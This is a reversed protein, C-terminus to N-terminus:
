NISSEIRNRHRSVVDSMKNMYVGTTKERSEEVVVCGRERAFWEVFDWPFREDRRDKRIVVKLGKLAALIGADVENLGPQRVGWEGYIVNFSVSTIANKQEEYMLDFIPVWHKWHPNPRRYGPCPPGYFEFINCSFPLLRAEQYTQRCVTLLSLFYYM